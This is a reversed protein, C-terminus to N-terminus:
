PRLILTGIYGAPLTLAYSCSDKLASAMQQQVHEDYETMAIGACKFRAEMMTWYQAFLAAREDDQAQQLAAIQQPSFYIDAVDQWDDMAKVAMLDIGPLQKQSIAAVSLGPEHSVSIFIEQTAIFCQLRSGAVRILRIQEATCSFAQMLLETIALHLQQRATERQLNQPFSLCIVVNSQQSFYDLASLCQAEWDFVSFAPLSVGQM